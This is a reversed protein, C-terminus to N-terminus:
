RPWCIRQQRRHEPRAASSATPRKVTSWSRSFGQAQDGDSADMSTWAVTYPGPALPENPAVAAQLTSAVPQNTTGVAYGARDLVAISSLAPDISNDYTIAIQAPAEDLRANTQPTTTHPRAHAWVTANSAGLLVFAAM